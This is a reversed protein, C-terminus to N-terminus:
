SARAFERFTYREGPRRGVSLGQITEQVLIRFRTFIAKWPLSGAIIRVLRSDPCDRFCSIAPLQCAAKRCSDLLLRPSFTGGHLRSPFIFLSYCSSSLLSSPPQALTTPLRTSGPSLQRSPASFSRLPLRSRAMFRVFRLRALLGGPAQWFGPLFNHVLFTGVVQRSDAPLRSSAYQSHARLLV